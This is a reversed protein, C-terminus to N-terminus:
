LIHPYDHQSLMVVRTEPLHRVIEITAEIGNVNPMSVDMVVVDPKLEQAKVIADFGGVAGGWVEIGAEHLLSRVGRRVIEHDDVVLVQMANRSRRAQNGALSYVCLPDVAFRDCEAPYGLM